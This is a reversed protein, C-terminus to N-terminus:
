KTAQASGLEISKAMMQEKETVATVVVRMGAKVDEITMPKKAKLIKTEKTVQVTVEKGEANKLMVHDAAAMTVTGRVKHEHGPHALLRGGTTVSLTVLALVTIAFRRTM